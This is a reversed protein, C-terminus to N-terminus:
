QVPGLNLIEQLSPSVHPHQSEAPHGHLNGPAKLLPGAPLCAAWRDQLLHYSVAVLRAVQGQRGEQWPNLLQQQYVRLFIATKMASLVASSVTQLLVGLCKKTVPFNCRYKASSDLCKWQAVFFFKPESYYFDLWAAKLHSMPVYHMLHETLKCIYYPRRSHSAKYDWKIEQLNGCFTWKHWM